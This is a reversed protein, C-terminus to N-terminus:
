GGAVAPFLMLEDGDALCRELEAQGVLKQNHFIRIYQSLRGDHIVVSRFSGPLREALALVLQLITTGDDPHITEKKTGASAALINFFYVSVTIM